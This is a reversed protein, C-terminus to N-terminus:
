AKCVTNNKQLGRQADGGEVKGLGPLSLNPVATCVSTETEQRRTAKACTTGQIFTIPKTRPFLMGLCKLATKVHNM